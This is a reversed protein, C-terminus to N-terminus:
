LGVIEPGLLLAFEVGQAVAVDMAEPLVLDLKLSLEPGLGRKKKITPIAESFVRM